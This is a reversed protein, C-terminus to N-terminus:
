SKHEHSRDLIVRAIEQRAKGLYFDREQPMFRGDGDPEASYIEEGGVDPFEVRFFSHRLRLYGVQVGGLFADYQEPCMESTCQLKIAAAIRDRESKM